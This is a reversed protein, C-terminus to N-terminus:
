TLSQPTTKKGEQNRRQLEKYLSTKANETHSSKTDQIYLIYLYLRTSFTKFMNLKKRYLHQKM